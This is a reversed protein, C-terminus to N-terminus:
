DEKIIDKSDVWRPFLDTDGIFRVYWYKLGDHEIAQGSYILTAVGELKLKSVPDEYVKVKMGRNMTEPTM